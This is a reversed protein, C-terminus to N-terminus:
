YQGTIRRWDNTINEWSHYAGGFSIGSLEEINESLYEIM